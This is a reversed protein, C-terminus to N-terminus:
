HSGPPGHKAASVKPDPVNNGKLHVLVFDEIKSVLESLTSRTSETINKAAEEVEVVRPALKDDWEQKADLTALHLKLKVEDRLTELRQLNKDVENKIQDSNMVLRTVPGM